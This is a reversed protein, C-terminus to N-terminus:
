LLRNTDIADSIGMHAAMSEMTLKNGPTLHMRQEMAIAFATELALGFEGVEVFHLVEARDADCFSSIEETLSRLESDLKEYLSEDM